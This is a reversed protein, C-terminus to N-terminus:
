APDAPNRDRAGLDRDGELDIRRDARRHVQQLALDFAPQARHVADALDDDNQRGLAGARLSFRSMLSMIVARAAMIVRMRGLLRLDAAGRRAARLQRQCADAMDDCDRRALAADALRGCGGIQGQRQQREAILDAHEIGVNVARRHLANEADGALGIRRGVLLHYGLLGM